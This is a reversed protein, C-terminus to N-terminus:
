AAGHLVNKDCGANVKKAIQAVTAQTVKDDTWRQGKRSYCHGASSLQAPTFRVGRLRLMLLHPLGMVVQGKEFESLVESKGIKGAKLEVKLANSDVQGWFYNINIFFM